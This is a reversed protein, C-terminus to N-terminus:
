SAFLQDNNSLVLRPNSYQICATFIASATIVYLINGFLYGLTCSHWGVFPYLM